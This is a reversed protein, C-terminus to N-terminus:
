IGFVNLLNNESPVNLAAKTGYEESNFLDFLKKAFWIKLIKNNPRNATTIKISIKM